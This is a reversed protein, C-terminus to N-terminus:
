GDVGTGINGQTAGPVVPAEMTPAKVANTPPAADPSAQGAGGAGMLMPPPLVYGGELFLIDRVVQMLAEQSTAGGVSEAVKIGEDIALKEWQEGPDDYKTDLVQEYTSLGRLYDDYEAETRIKKDQATLKETEVKIVYDFGLDSPNFKMRSGSDIKKHEGYHINSNAMLSFARKPYSKVSVLLMELISRVCWDKAGIPDSDLRGRAEIQQLQVNATGRTYLNPDDIDTHAQRFERYEDAWSQELKDLDPNSDGPWPVIKGNVFAADGPTLRLAPTRGGQEGSNDEIAGPSGPVPEVVAVPNTVRISMSMRMARVNNLGSLYQYGPWYSPVLREGPGRNSLVAGSAIVAPVGGTREKTSWLTESQKGESGKAIHYIDLGDYLCVFEVQQLRGKGSRGMAYGATDAAHDDSFKRWTKGSADFRVHQGELPGKKRGSYLKEADGVTMTYRRALVPPRFPGGQIPFFCTNSAPKEVWWPFSWEDDPDDDGCHLITVDYSSLMLNWYTESFWKNGDNLQGLCLVLRKELEDAQKKEDLTDGDRNFVTLHTDFTNWKARKTLALQLLSPSALELVDGTELLKEAVTSPLRMSIIAERREMLKIYAQMEASNELETAWEQAQAATLMTIPGAACAGTQTVRHM